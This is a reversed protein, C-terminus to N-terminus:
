KELTQFLLKFEKKFPNDKLLEDQGPGDLHAPTEPKQDNLYSINIQNINSARVSGPSHSECLRTPLDTLASNPTMNLTSASSPEKLAYNQTLTTKYSNSKKTKGRGGKGPTIEVFKKAKLTKLRRKVTEIAVGTEEAITEIAPFCHDKKYTALYLLIKLEYPDLLSSKILSYPVKLYFTKKDTM